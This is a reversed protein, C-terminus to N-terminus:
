QFANVIKQRLIVFCKLIEPFSTVIRLFCKTHFNGVFFIQSIRFPLHSDQTTKNPCSNFFMPCICHNEIRKQEWLKACFEIKITTKNSKFNMEILQSLPIKVQLSKNEQNLGCVDSENHSIPVFKIRLVIFVSFIWKLSECGLYTSDM